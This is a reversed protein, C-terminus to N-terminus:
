DLILNINRHKLIIDVIQEFLTQGQKRAALDIRHQWSQVNSPHVEDKLAILRQRMAEHGLESKSKESNKWRIIFSENSSPTGFGGRLMDNLQDLDGNWTERDGFVKINFESIFGEFDSFNNGDIAYQTDSKM